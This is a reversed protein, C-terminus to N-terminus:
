CWDKENSVLDSESSSQRVGERHGLFGYLYTQRGDSIEGAAPPHCSYCRSGPVFGFQLEDITLVQRILSDAIREIVKM